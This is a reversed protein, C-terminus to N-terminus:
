KPVVRTARWLLRLAIAFILVIALLLFLALGMAAILLPGILVPSM